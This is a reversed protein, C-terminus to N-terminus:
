ISIDSRTQNSSVLPKQHERVKHSCLLECFVFPSQLLFCCPRTCCAQHLQQTMRQQSQKKKPFEPMVHTDNRKGHLTGWQLRKGSTDSTPPNHHKCLGDFAHRAALCHSCRGLTLELTRSTSAEHKPEQVTAFHGPAPQDEDQKKQKMRQASIITCAGDRNTRSDYTRPKRSLSSCVLRISAAKQPEQTNLVPPFLQDAM